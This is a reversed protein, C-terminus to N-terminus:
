VCRGAASLGAAGGIILRESDMILRVAEKLKETNDEHSLRKAEKTYAEMREKYTM